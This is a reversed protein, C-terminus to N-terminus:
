KSEKDKLKNIERELYWRNKAAESMKIKTQVSKKIGKIKSENNKYFTNLSKSRKKRTEESIIKGKSSKSIKEKIERSLRRGRNGNGLKYRTENSLVRKKNAESIRRKGDESMGRFGGQGGPVINYFNNNDSYAKYFEVWYKERKNNIKQDFCEELLEKKFNEKGYKKIAQKIYKGSGLYDIDEEFCKTTSRKGIYKKGNILNTTLYIYFYKKM